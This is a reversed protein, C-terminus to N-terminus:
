QEAVERAAAAGASGVQGVTESLAHRIQDALRQSSGGAEQLRQLALAGLVAAGALYGATLGAVALRRPLFTEAIRLVTTSAAGIALVACGAAAGLLVIGAAAPRAADAVDARVSQLEDRVVAAMDGALREGPSQQTGGTNATEESM